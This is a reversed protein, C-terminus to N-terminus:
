KMPGGFDHYGLIALLIFTLLGFGGFGYVYSQARDRYSWGVSLLLALFYVVWFWGAPSM